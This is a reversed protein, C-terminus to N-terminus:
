APKCCNVLATTGLSERIATEKSFGSKGL